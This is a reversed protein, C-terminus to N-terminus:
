RSRRKLARSLAETSVRRGPKGMRVWPYGQRPDVELRLSEAHAVAARAIKKLPLRPLRLRGAADEFSARSFERTLEGALCEVILGAAVGAIPGRAPPSAMTTNLSPGGVADLLAARIEAETPAAGDSDETTRKITAYAKALLNHTADL